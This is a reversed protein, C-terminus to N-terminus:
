DRWIFGAKILWARADDLGILGANVKLRAARLDDEENARIAAEITPLHTEGPDEDVLQNCGARHWYAAAVEFGVAADLLLDPQALLPLGTLTAAAAYNDHGTIMLPSRGRYKWGDGPETNGMRGGYTKNALAEPNNAYPAAAALTPFRKPWVEVLRKASYNLREQFVTLGVSEVCLQAVFHRVRRPTGIEFAACAKSLRPALAAYDCRNNLQQLKLATITPDPSM